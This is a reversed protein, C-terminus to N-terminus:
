SAKGMLDELFVLGQRRWYTVGLAVHLQTTCALNWPGKRSGAIKKANQPSIGLRRLNRERTRGRKWQMLQCCRLRRFIWSQLLKWKSPTEVVRFYASWGRLFENMRKIREEFSIGWNRNTLERIRAKFREESAKALGVKTKLSRSTQLNIGLFKRRNVFDAASKTQNVKLKLQGELIKRLSEFVREAARRSKVYVNCDDAFRVFRHGRRELEKDLVDLTLNSLLPSLPSGQPVGSELRACVGNDMIGVNLYRRIINLLRQDRIRNRLLQMLKDHCVRDFFSELDIDVVYVFGEEVFGKAKGIAQQASKGRRFGFSSESFTPDFIPTLVQLIAQQVLRDCVTPIGLKRKGGGSAKPIEVRRVPQPKYTGNLLEERLKAGEKILHNRLEHTHMGDIGPAGKNREVRELASLINGRAVVKEMLLADDANSGSSNSKQTSHSERAPDAPSPNVERAQVRSKTHLNEAPKPGKM